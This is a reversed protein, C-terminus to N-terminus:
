GRQGKRYTAGDGDVPGAQQEVPGVLMVALRRRVTGPRALFKARGNILVTCSGETGHGGSAMDLPLVDGPQLNALEGIGLLTTGLIVSVPLSLKALSQEKELRERRSQSHEDAATSAVWTYPSLQSAIPKLAPYPMVLTMGSTHGKARVEFGVWIIADTPLAVPVLMLNQSIDDIRPRLQYASSWAEQLEGLLRVAVDRLLEIELDTMRREAKGPAAPGGMLRDVIISALDPSMHLVFHGALPLLGVTYFIGQDLLQQSLGAYMGQDIDCLTVEVSTRLHASMSVAIRRAWTEHIMRLARMQEKSFRDPRRFDYRRVQSGQAAEKPSPSGGVDAPNPLLGMPRASGTELSGGAPESTAAAVSALLADIESQSLLGANELDMM